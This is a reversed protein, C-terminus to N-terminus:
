EVAGRGGSRVLVVEGHVPPFCGPCDRPRLRSAIRQHEHGNPHLHDEPDGERFGRRSMEARGADFAVHTPEDKAIAAYFGSSFARAAADLVLGRWCVICLHPLSRHIERAIRETKCANLFLAQLEPAKAPCLLRIFEDAHPVAPGGYLAAPVTTATSAAASSAPTVTSAAVAPAAAAPAAPRADPEFLLHGGLEHGSFAIMKPLLEDLVREVDSLRAAPRVERRSHRIKALMENIERMLKLDSRPNSFFAAVTVRRREITDDAARWVAKSLLEAASPRCQPEASLMSRILRGHGDHPCHSTAREQPSPTPNGSGPTGSGGGNYSEYIDRYSVEDGFLPRGCFLAYLLAGAAWVDLAPEVRREAFRSNAREVLRAHEPACYGRSNIVATIADIKHASGFDVIRYRGDPFRLFHEPKIDLHCWGVEHVRAVCQLVRYALAAAMSVAVADAHAHAASTASAAATSATGNTNDSSGRSDSGISVASLESLESLGAASADSVCRSPQPGEAASGASPQPTPQSPQPTPQLSPLRGVSVNRCCMQRLSATEGAEAAELVLVEGCTLELGDDADADDSGDGHEGHGNTRSGGRSRGFQSSIERLSAADLTFSGLLAPAYERGVARIAEKERACVTEDAVLKLFVATGSAADHALTSKCGALGLASEGPHVRQEYEGNPGYRASVFRPPPPQLPPAPECREFHIVYRPVAQFRMYVVIEDTDPVAVSDYGLTRLSEPTLDTRTQGRPLQMARGLVAEVLLMRCDREGTYKRPSAKSADASLYQGKGFNGGQWKSPDFGHECISHVNAPSTGHFYGGQPPVARNGGPELLGRATREHRYSLQPNHVRWVEVVQFFEGGQAISRAVHEVVQKLELAAGPDGTLPQLSFASDPESKERRPMPMPPPPAAARLQDIELLLRRRHLASRVGLETQLDDDTLTALTKGDIAHQQFGACCQPLGLRRLWALVASCDGRALAAYAATAEDLSSQATAAAAAASAPAAAAIAAAAVTAAGSAAGTPSPAGPYSALPTPPASTPRPPAGGGAGRGAGAVPSSKGEKGRGRKGGSGGGQARGGGGGGGSSHSSSESRCRRVATAGGSGGGAAAPARGGGAKGGSGGAGGGSSEVLERLNDTSGGHDSLASSFSHTRGPIFGTPRRGGLPPYHSFDACSPATSSLASPLSGSGRGGNSWSGSLFPGSAPLTQPRCVYSGPPAEHLAWEIPPREYAPDRLVVMRDDSQSLPSDRRGGGGSGRGSRSAAPLRVHLDQKVPQTQFYPKFHCECNVELTQQHSGQVIATRSLEFPPHRVTHSSPNLADQVSFTVADLVKALDVCDCSVWARWEPRRNDAQNTQVSHGFTLFLNFEGDVFEIPAAHIAPAEAPASAADVCSPPLWVPETPQPQSGGTSQSNSRARSM